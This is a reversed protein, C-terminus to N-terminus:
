SIDKGLCKTIFLRTIDSDLQKGSVDQLEQIVEDINIANRYARHSTMADFTDAVAIIRAFLPIEDGSLGQPYGKGDIREHHYLISCICGKLQKIPLIIKYGKLPHEKIFAYEEDTLKGSKNLIESPIGIKGIDHLISAINLQEMEVSDLGLHTGIKLSWENVRESHGRTYPDKEEIAETFSKMLNLSLEKLETFLETNSIKIALMDAVVTLLRKDSISFTEDTNQRGILVLGNIKNDLNVPVILFHKCDGAVDNLSQHNNLDNDTLYDKGSQMLKFLAPTLTAITQTLSDTSSKLGHASAITYIDKCPINLIAYDAQIIDITKKLMNHLVEEHDRLPELSHVLQTFFTSNKM